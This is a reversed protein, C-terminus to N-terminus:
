EAFKDAKRRGMRMGSELRARLQTYYAELFAKEDNWGDNRGIKGAITQYVTEISAVRNERLVRELAQLEFEGYVALETDEFQYTQRQVLQTGEDERAVSMAAELKQRPRELVWSGAIVDGARLGDRNFLPFLMFILLWGTAALWAWGSEVGGSMLFVIPLFLEIDRLLNRAIVMDATLRGGDRAAIRIGTLRKGPTAGRAGLEFFLFYANRFLFMIVIWVILLFQLAHGAASGSNMVKGASVAGGAISFLAITSGIMLVVIILLDLMLAGLRAGRSAVAVPLAIGEPTVLMRDRGSRRLRTPMASM